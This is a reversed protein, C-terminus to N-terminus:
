IKIRKPQKEEDKAQENLERKLIAYKILPPFYRTLIDEFNDVKNAIPWKDPNEKYEKISSANVSSVNNDEVLYCWRSEAGNYTIKHAEVIGSFKHQKLVDVHMCEKLVAGDGLFFHYYAMLAERMNGKKSSGKLQICDKKFHIMPSMAYFIAWRQEKTFNLGSYSNIKQSVEEKESKSSAIYENNIDVLKKQWDTLFFLESDSLPVDFTLKGKYKLM